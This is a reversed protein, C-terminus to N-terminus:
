AHEVEAWFASARRAFEDPREIMPGHGTDPFRHTRAGLAKAGRALHRFPLVVDKDGWVMFVPVGTARVRPLLERRWRRKVGALSGISRLMQLMAESGGPRQALEYGREVREPTALSPDHYMARESRLAGKRSPRLAREGVGPLAAVRLAPSVGRGFGASDVLLLSRM